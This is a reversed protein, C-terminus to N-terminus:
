LGRVKALAANVVDLMASVDHRDLTTQVHGFAFLRKQVKELAAVLGAVTDDGHKDPVTLLGRLAQGHRRMIKANGPGEPRGAIEQCQALLEFHNAAACIVEHFDDDGHKADITNASV